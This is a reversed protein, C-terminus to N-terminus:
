TSFKNTLITENTACNARITIRMVNRSFFVNQTCQIENFYQQNSPSFTSAHFNLRFGKPIVKSELCRGIFDIDSCFRTKTFILTALRFGLSNSTPLFPILYSVIELQIPHTDKPKGDDETKQNRDEQTRGTSLFSDLPRLSLDVAILPNTELSVTTSRRHPRSVCFKPNLSKPSVPLLSLPRKKPFIWIRIRTDLFPNQTEKGLDSFPNIM